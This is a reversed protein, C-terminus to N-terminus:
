RAATAVVVTRATARNNRLKPDPSASRVTAVNKVHGPIGIWVLITMTAREGPELDGFRCELAPGTSTCGLEDGSVVALRVDNPLVDTVRVDFAEHPGNNAVVISYVLDSLVHVPDPHDVKTITLDAQGYQYQALAANAAGGARIDRAAMAGLVALAVFAASIPVIALRRRHRAADQLTM